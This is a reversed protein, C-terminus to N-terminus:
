SLRGALLAPLGERNARTVEHLEVDPRRKVEAIFGGGWLAVTAVVPVPGDLHRRMARVFEPSLCEMRGIEDCLILDAPRELEELVLAEFGAVHVGYHGVWPGETRDVHALITRRGSFTVALFGVRRGGERIESTYFGTLRRGQLHGALKTMVTTKGVGPRGTLLLNKV